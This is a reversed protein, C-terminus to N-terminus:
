SPIIHSGAQRCAPTFIGAWRLKLPPPHQHVFANAEFAINLIREIMLLKVANTFANNIAARIRAVL